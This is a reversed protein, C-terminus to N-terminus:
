ITENIFKLPFRAIKYKQRIRKLEKNFCSAVRKARHLEGTIANRNYGAPIKSNWHVHLKVSKSFIQMTIEGNERISETDLFNAPNVELTLKINENYFNLKEFLKDVDNEKRRVYTDVVYCKHFIPKAHVVVDLEMKCMFIDSYVISIPGGIPCGDVQKLIKETVSLVCGKTFKFLLRIFILKKGM